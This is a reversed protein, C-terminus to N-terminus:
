LWTLSDYFMTNHTVTANLYEKKLRLQFKEAMSSFNMNSQSLGLEKDEEQEDLVKNGDEKVQEDSTTYSIQVNKLSIQVIERPL